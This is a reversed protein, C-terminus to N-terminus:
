VLPYTSRVEVPAFGALIAFASGVNGTGIAWSWAALLNDQEAGLRVAWFMEGESDQAHDRVQTLLGTYYAAHRARWRGAGGAGGRSPTGPPRSANRATSASRSWCVTAAKRATNRPWWWRGRWWPRWCTWCRTRISVTEGASGRPRRWPPAAPSCRWGPWCGSNPGPSCGM